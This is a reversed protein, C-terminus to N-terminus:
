SVYEAVEPSHTARWDSKAVLGLGVEGYPNNMQSLLQPHDQRATGVSGLARSGADPRGGSWQERGGQCASVTPLCAFDIHSGEDSPLFLRPFASFLSMSARPGTSATWDSM